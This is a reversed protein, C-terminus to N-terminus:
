SRGRRGAVRAEPPGSRGFLSGDAVGDGGGQADVRSRQDVDLAGVPDVVEAVHMGGEPRRGEAVVALLQEGRDEGVGHDVLQAGVEHLVHATAAWQRRYADAVLGVPQQGDDGGSAGGGIVGVETRQEGAEELRTRPKQSAATSRTGRSPREPLGAPSRTSIRPIVGVVWANDPRGTRPNWSICFRIALLRGLGTGSPLMAACRATPSM